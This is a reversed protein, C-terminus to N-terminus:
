RAALGQAGLTPLGNVVQLRVLRGDSRIRFATISGRAGNLVYFNRGDGSVGSDIPGAATNPISAVSEMLTLVGNNISYVSITGSDTNSTYAFRQDSSVVVWCTAAQGSPVSRSIPILTGTSAVGYSSLANAGAESVLLIGTALFASGFPGGGSSSNVTPEALTGDGNVGFVTLRNTTLESVILQRGDPSFIVRAPQADDTSLAYTAGPIRTLRGDTEIRFGTINSDFGNNADGVNSAYLLSGFSDLSNPQAGGSPEVDALQLAGSLAVRFSSISGSGANVSFLRCGDRSLALSGQSALPDIGDQPTATSVEGAGTGSGGTAYARMRVLTGNARRRFAVVENSDAGNTMAYVMGIRRGTRVRPM